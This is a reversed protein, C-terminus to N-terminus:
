RPNTSDAFLRQRCNPRAGSNVVLLSAQGLRLIWVAPADVEHDRDRPFEAVREPDHGPLAAITARVSSCFGTRAAKLACFSM